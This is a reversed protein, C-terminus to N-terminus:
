PLKEISEVLYKHRKFVIDLILMLYRLAIALILFMGFFGASLVLMTTTWGAVPNVGSFLVVLIYALEALTLALMVISIGVSVKYGVNTYLLLSDLGRNFRLNDETKGAPSDYELVALKLGSSAYAAKRYPVTPTIARIRNIARRSLLCFTNTHLKNNSTSFTNFLRYFMNSTFGRNKKPSVAVIDNGELCKSYAADILEDPYPTTMTDFEYVFDGIAADMGANMSIEIGQHMSMHIITTPPRQPLAALFEKINAETDDASADNVFVLEYNKFRSGLRQTLRQLFGAAHSAENGLYVVASLYNKEKEVM